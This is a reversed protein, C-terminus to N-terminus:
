SSRARRQWQGGRDRQHRTRLTSFTRCHAAMIPTFVTVGHQHRVRLARRNEGLRRLVPHRRYRHQQRRRHAHRRRGVAPPTTPSSITSRRQHRHRATIKLTEISVATTAGFVIVDQEPAHCRGHVRDADLRQRNRWRDPAASTSSNAPVGRDHREATESSLSPTASTDAALSDFGGPRRRHLTAQASRPVAFFDFDATPRPRATSPRPIGRRFSRGFDAHQQGAASVDRQRRKETIDCDHGSGFRSTASTACPPPMADGARQRRHLRRRPGAHQHLDGLRQRHDPRERQVGRGHHIRRQRWQRDGIDNGGHSTDSIDSTNNGSESSRRAASSPTTALAASSISIATARRAATSISRLRHRHPRTADVTMRAPPSTATM